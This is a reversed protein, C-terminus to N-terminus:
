AHITQDNAPSRIPWPFHQRSFQGIRVGDDWDCVSNNLTCFPMLISLVQDVQLVNGIKVVIWQMAGLYFLMSVFFSFFFIVSLVKFQFVFGVANRSYLDSVVQYSTSNPELADLYFPQQSVLYGYVFSSGSDTFALFRSM